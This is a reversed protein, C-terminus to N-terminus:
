LIYIRVFKGDVKIYFSIYLHLILKVITLRRNLFTKRVISQLNWWFFFFFFILSGFLFFVFILELGKWERLTGLKGRFLSRIVNSRKMRPEDAPSDEFPILEGILSRTIPATLSVRNRSLLWLMRFCRTRWEPRSSATLLQLVISNPNATELIRPTLVSPYTQDCAHSHSVRASIISGDAAHAELAMIAGAGGGEGIHKRRPARCLFM